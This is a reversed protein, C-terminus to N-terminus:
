GLKARRRQNSLGEALNSLSAGCADACPTEVVNCTGRSGVILKPRVPYRSDIGTRITKTFEVNDNCLGLRSTDTQNNRQSIVPSVVASHIEVDRLHKSTSLSVAVEVCVRVDFICELVIYLCEDSPVEILRGDHSPFQGIFRPAISAITPREEWKKTGLYNVEELRQGKRRPRPSTQPIDQIHLVGFNVSRSHNLIDFRDIRIV